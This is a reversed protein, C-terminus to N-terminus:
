ERLIVSSLKNIDHQIARDFLVLISSSIIMQIIARNFNVLIPSNVHYSKLQKLFHLMQKAKKFIYIYNKNWSLDNSVHTGLFKFSNIQEVETNQITLSVMPTKNRRVIIMEKTKSVNLFFVIQRM